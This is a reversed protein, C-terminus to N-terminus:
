VLKEQGSPGTVTDVFTPNQHVEAMVFLSDSTGSTLYRCSDRLAGASHYRKYNSVATPSYTSSSLVSTSQHRSYGGTVGTLGQANDNAVDTTSQQSESRSANEEEEHVTAIPNDYTHHGVLRSSGTKEESSGTSTLATPLKHDENLCVRSIKDLIVIISMCMVIIFVLAAISILFIIGYNTASLVNSPSQENSPDTHLHSTCTHVTARHM